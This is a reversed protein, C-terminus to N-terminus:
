HEALRHESCVSSFIHLSMNVPNVQSSLNFPGSETTCQQLYSCATSSDHGARRARVPAIKIKTSKTIWKGLGPDSFHDKESQRLLRRPLVMYM